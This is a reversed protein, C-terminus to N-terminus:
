NMMITFFNDHKYVMPIQSWTGEQDEDDPHVLSSQLWCAERTPSQLRM